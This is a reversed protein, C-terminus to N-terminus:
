FRSKDPPNQGEAVEERSRAVIPSMSLEGRSWGRAMSMDTGVQVSLAPRLIASAFFHSVLFTHLAASQTSAYDSGEFLDHFQCACLQFGETRALFMHENSELVGYFRRSTLLFYSHACQPLMLLFFVNRRLSQFSRRCIRRKL